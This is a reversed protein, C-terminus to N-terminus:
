LSLIFCAFKCLLIFESCVLPPLELECMVDVDQGLQIYLTDFDVAV